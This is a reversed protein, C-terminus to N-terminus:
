TATFDRRRRVAAARVRAVAASFRDGRFIIAAPTSHRLPTVTESHLRM